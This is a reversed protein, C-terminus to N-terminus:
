FLLRFCSSKFFASCSFKMVTNFVSVFCFFRDFTEKISISGAFLAFMSAKSLARLLSHAILSKVTSKLFSSQLLVLLGASGFQLNGLYKFYNVRRQRFFIQCLSNVSVINSM